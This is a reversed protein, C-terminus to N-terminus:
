GVLLLTALTRLLRQLPTRQSQGSIKIAKEGLEKDALAGQASGEPQSILTKLKHSSPTKRNVLYLASRALKSVAGPERCSCYASVIEVEPHTVNRSANPIRTHDQIEIGSCAARLAMAAAGGSGLCRRHSNRYVM